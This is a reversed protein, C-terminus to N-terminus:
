EEGQALEKRIDKIFQLSNDFKEQYTNKQQELLTIKSQLQQIEKQQNELDKSKQFDTNHLEQINTELESKQKKIQNLETTIEQEKQQSQTELREKLSQPAQELNTIKTQNEEEKLSALEREKAQIKQILTQLPNLEWDVQLKSLKLNQSLDLEKLDSNGFLQLTTLNNLNTTNLEHLQNRELDLDTINPCNDIILEKIGCSKLYVKELKPCNKIELRPINHRTVFHSM